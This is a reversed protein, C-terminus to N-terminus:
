PAARQAILEDLRRTLDVPDVPAILYADAGLKQGTEVHEGSVYVASVHVIPVRATSPKERLLRCVEFGHVDPLHVDLVVGSVYEALELAQAGASAEVTQFGAARLARSMAYRSAEVDDVVLISHQSRQPSM